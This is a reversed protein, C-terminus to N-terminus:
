ENEGLLKIDGLLPDIEPQNAEAEFDGEMVWSQKGIEAAYEPPTKPGDMIVLGGRVIQLKPAIYKIWDIQQQGSLTIYRSFVIDSEFKPNREMPGSSLTSLEFGRGELYAEKYRLLSYWLIQHLWINQNPDSQTHAGIQFVERLFSLEREVNWLSTPPVIYVSTFDDAVGTAIVFQVDSKIKKIEYAHGSRQSVLFMGRAMQETDLNAPLRVIGTVPDYAVPTFNSYVKQPVSRIFSPDIEGGLRNDGLSTREIMEASSNHVITICPFIPDDVRFQMFIFINTNLFWKKAQEVEKFGYDLSALPDAALGGFVDDLLWPNKRLDAIAAELMTKVLVDTSIISM